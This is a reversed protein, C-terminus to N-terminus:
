DEETEKKKIIFAGLLISSSVFGLLSWFPLNSSDGTPPNVPIEPDEVKQPINNTVENTAVTNNGDAVVAKNSITVGDVDLVKVKFSVTVREGAAVELEWTLTGNAYVGNHSASGDVYSTNEPITDTITVTTKEKGTNKYTITYILEDGASVEKGDISATADASLFVDKEAVSDITHNTVENTTYINKGDRVVATNSVVVDTEDVRVNFFVTVSEGKAVALIWNLHTGAYTGNHSASGEVYSTHRPIVDMIDVVVDEGTYNTYTIFYSLIDGASVKKGDIETTTNGSIYVEKEVAEDFTANTFGVSVDINALSHTYANTQLDHVVARLQGDGADRVQVHFRYQTGDYVIGEVANADDEVIVYFLNDAHDYKITEFAFKGDINTVTGIPDSTIAFTSDTQYLKFTFDRDSLDAGVLTKTGKFTVLAAAGQYKNEFVINENSVDATAVLVSNDDTVTVKVTIPHDVGSYTVGPVSGQKEKVIYTYVDAKTYSIASFAFTGDAKVGVTEVLREGEYLEFEFEGASIARGSLVKTGKIIYETATVTYRNVFVINGTSDSNHGVKNVSVDTVALRTADTSDIDVTITIHYHTTDYTVGAANGAVEKVSYYYKGVKDFTIKTFSFNKGANVVTQNADGSIIFSSNTEYLAFTFERDKPDRGELVKNGGITYETPLLKYENKFEVDVSDDGNVTSSGEIEAVAVLKGSVKTVTIKVTYETDDYDMGVMGGNVETLKYTYVGEGLDKVRITAKGSADTTVSYTDDADATNVMNFRFIDKPINVGTNNVLEKYINVDAHTRDVDYINTFNKTVTDGSVTTNAYDEVTYELIGDANTDTVKVAFLGRTSDYTMGETSGSQETVRFYYVGLKLSEDLVDSLKFSYTGGAKATDTALVVYGGPNTDSVGVYRSLVFVFDENATYTNNVDNLIKTGTVTIDPKIPTIKYTNIFHADNDANAVIVGSVSGTTNEYGPVTSIETVTYSTGEPLRLISISENDKLKVTFRANEDATVTDSTVLSANTKDVYYTKNALTLPLQVEFTFEKQSMSDTIDTLDHAIDKIITLDGYKKPANTVTAVAYQAGGALVESLTPVKVTDTKSLIYYEANEPINEGIVCETAAPIGTIYVTEGAKLNVTLVNNSYISITSTIDNGGSDRVVPTATVGVPVTVTLAYTDSANGITESVAKTLAIGTNIATTLSGNNGLWIVVSNGNHIQATDHTYQPAYRQEATKTANDTKLTIMNHLRSTRLSGVGLVAYLQATPNNTLYAEIADESVVYGMDDKTYTGTASDYNIYKGTLADYFAVSERLYGWDTYVLYTVEEAANSADSTDVTPRYYTVYTYVRDDDALSKYKEYTLWTLDYKGDEYLVGYEDAEWDIESGDKALVETFVAQNSQHYYYRNENSPQFGIHADGADVLGDNDSDATNMKGFANSYFTIEGTTDDIYKYGSDIKTIDIEGNPLMIDSRLGVTYYVRLPNYTLETITSTSVGGVTASSAQELIIPLIQQNIRIELKQTGDAQKTVSILIDESTIYEENTTPNVGKAYELVYTGNANKVVNYSSGFLTVAQIDKIEMYQGIFDVYILPTDDVGTAGEVTSSSSIPNFVTSILEEYIQDFVNAIDVSSVPYYNDVYYINDVIDDLTVNNQAPYNHDFVWNGSTINVTAGTKWTEFNKYAAAIDPNTNENAYSKFGYDPDSPNIIAVGEDSSSLDVGVGYVVSAKGYKKEVLSKMYSANLLTSLAVTSTVNNSSPQKYTGKTTDYWSTNVAMNARGDTLVIMVPTRNAVNDANTLIRMGTDIGSQLNTGTQYGASNGGLAVNNNNYATLQGGKSTSTNNNNPRGGGGKNETYTDARLTVGDSYTGLELITQASTGYTVIAIRANKIALLNELLSNAANVVRELRSVGGSTQAMSASNDLVIVVDMPGVNTSTTKTTMSSGLASFIVQFAEDEDLSVEFSSGAQGSTNLVAIDGHKYVSKDAWVRGAYRNGDSHTGMMSEWTYATGPDTVVDPRDNSTEALATIVSIPLMTLILAICLLMSTIRDSFKFKTKM